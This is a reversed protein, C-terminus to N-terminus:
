IIALSLENEQLILLAEALGYMFAKDTVTCRFEIHIGIHAKSIM